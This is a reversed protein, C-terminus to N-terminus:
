LVFKQNKLYALLDQKKDVIIYSQPASFSYNNSLFNLTAPAKFKRVRKVPIAYGSDLGTLYELVDSDEEIGQSLALQNIKEATDIIPKSFEVFGVISSAPSPAYVFAGCPVNIFKRRFEYKKKGSLMLDFYKKEISVILNM